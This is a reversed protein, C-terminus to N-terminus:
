SVAFPSIMLLSWREPISLVRRDRCGWDSGSRGCDQLSFIKCPASHKCVRSGALLQSSKEATSDFRFFILAPDCVKDTCDACIKGNIKAGLFFDLKRMLQQGRRSLILAQPKPPAPTEFNRPQPFSKRPTQGRAEESAQRGDQRIKRRACLHLSPLHHLGQLAIRHM